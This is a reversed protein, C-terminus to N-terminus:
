SREKLEERLRSARGLTLECRAQLERVSQADALGLRAFLERRRKLSRARRDLSRKFARALGETLASQWRM